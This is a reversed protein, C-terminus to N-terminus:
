FEGVFQIEEEVEFGFRERIRKKLEDILLKVESARGTGTNYILNAHYSTIEIGGRRMKKAGVQELFYASAVKGERVASAPVEAAVAPPLDKLYLNKFISGACQMAPPFKEDRIKTIEDARARLQAANGPQLTFRASFITWDKHRKFVSERYSFECGANGLERVKHGDYFQVWEAREAVSHGYAGANGYVAGGVSGPIRALTELGGLGADISFDVLAQLSAGAGATVCHGQRKIEAGLFRLIVGRYGKDSVLVNSGEGLVYFDAEWSRCSQVLAAFRDPDSTEILLDAPGGINFRTFKNLRVNRRLRFAPDTDQPAEM